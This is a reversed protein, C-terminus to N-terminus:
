AQLWWKYDLGYNNSGKNERKRLYTTYTLVNSSENLLVILLFFYIYTIATNKGM